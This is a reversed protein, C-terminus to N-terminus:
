KNNVIGFILSWAKMTTGTELDLWFVVWSSLGSTLSCIVLLLTHIEEGFFYISAKPRSVELLLEIGM